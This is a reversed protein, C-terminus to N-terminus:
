VAEIDRPLREALKDLARAIVTGVSGTPIGVARGIERHKFGEERMLLVTRDRESLADLADRVRQRLRSRDIEDAPDDPPRGSPAREPREALLASQRRGSRWADRVVNTAVTFLWARVGSADAPPREALRVFAEQAADEALEVDGCLRVLYRVLAAHHLRYHTPVDM